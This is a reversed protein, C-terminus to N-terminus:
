SQREIQEQDFELPASIKHVLVLAPQLIKQNKKRKNWKQVFFFFHLFSNQLSKETKNEM